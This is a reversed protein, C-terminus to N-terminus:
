DAPRTAGRAFDPHAFRKTFRLLRANCSDETDSSRHKVPRHEYHWGTSDMSMLWPSHGEAVGAGLPREDSALVTVTTSDNTDVAKPYGSTTL